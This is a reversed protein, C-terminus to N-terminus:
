EEATTPLAYQAAELLVCSDTREILRGVEEAAAIHAAGVNEVQQEDLRSLLYVRSKSLAEAWQEAASLDVPNQKHLRRQAQSLDQAAAAVRIGPGPADSLETCLAIVGNDDVL